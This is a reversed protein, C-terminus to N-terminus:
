SHIINGITPLSSAYGTFDSHLLGGFFGGARTM